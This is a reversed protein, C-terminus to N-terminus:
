ARQNLIKASVIRRALDLALVPDDGMRYQARRVAVGHAPDGAIRAILRGRRTFWAVASGRQALLSLATSSVQCHGYVHLRDIGAMPQETRHGGPPSLVLHRCSAGILTGQTHVVITAMR